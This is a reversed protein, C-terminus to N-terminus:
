RAVEIAGKRFRELVSVEVRPGPAADCGSETLLGVSAAGVVIETSSRDRGITMSEGARAQFTRSGSTLTLSAPVSVGCAGYDPACSTDITAQVQLRTDPGNGAQGRSHLVQGSQEVVGRLLLLQASDAGRAWSVTVTKLTTGAAAIDVRDGARLPLEEADAGLAGCIRWPVEASPRDGSEGARGISLEACDGDRRASLVRLGGGVPVPESWGIERTRLADCREAPTSGDGRQLLYSGEFAQAKLKFAVGYSSMPAALAIAQGDSLRFVDCAPTAALRAKARETTFFLADEGPSVRVVRADDFLAPDIRAPDIRTDMATLFSCNGVVSARLERVEVDVPVARESSLTFLARDDPPKPPELEHPRCGTSGVLVLLIPALARV